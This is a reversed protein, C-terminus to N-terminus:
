TQVHHPVGLRILLLVVTNGLMFGVSPSIELVSKIETKEKTTTTRYTRPLTSRHKHWTIETNYGDAACQFKAVGFLLINVDQPGQLIVPPSM